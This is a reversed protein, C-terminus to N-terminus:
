GIIENRVENYFLNLNELEAAEVGQSECFSLIVLCIDRPIREAVMITILEKWVLRVVNGLRNAIGVMEGIKSLRQLPTEEQTYMGIAVDEFELQLMFVERDVEYVMEKLRVSVEQYKCEFLSLETQEHSIISNMM